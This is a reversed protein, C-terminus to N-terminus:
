QVRSVPSIWKSRLNTKLCTLSNTRARLSVCHLFGRLPEIDGIDNATLVLERVETCRILPAADTIGERILYLQRLDEPFTLGLRQETAALELPTATPNLSDTLSPLKEELLALLEKMYPVVM